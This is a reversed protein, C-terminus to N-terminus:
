TFKLLVFYPCNLIINLLTNSFYLIILLYVFFKGRNTINMCRKDVPNYIPSRSPCPMLYAESGTLQCSYFKACDNPDPFYGTISCTFSDAFFNHLVFIKRRKVKQSRYGVFISNRM